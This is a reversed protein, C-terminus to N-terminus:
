TTRTSGSHTSFKSCAPACNDTPASTPACSTAARCSASSVATSMSSRYANSGHPEGADPGCTVGIRGPRHHCGASTMLDVAHNSGAKHRSARTRRLALAHHPQRDTYELKPLLDAESVVGIVVGNTDVVPVASVSHNVLLDAIERFGVQLEVTIVERTMVDGVTVHRM